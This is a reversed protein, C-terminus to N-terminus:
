DDQIALPTHYRLIHHHEHFIGNRPFVLSVRSSKEFVNKFRDQLIKKWILTFNLSLVCHYLCCGYCRSNVKLAHGFIYILKLM